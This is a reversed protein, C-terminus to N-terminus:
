DLNISLATIGGGDATPAVSINQVGGIRLRRLEHVPIHRLDIPGDAARRAPGKRINQLFRRLVERGVIPDGDPDIAALVERPIVRGSDADFLGHHLIWPLLEEGLRASDRGTFHKAIARLDSHSLIHAGAPIRRPLPRPSKSLEADLDIM